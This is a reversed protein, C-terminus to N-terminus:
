NIKNGANPNPIAYKKNPSVGSNAIPNMMRAMHGPPGVDLRRVWRPLPSVAKHIENVAMELM